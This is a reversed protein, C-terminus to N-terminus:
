FSWLWFSLVDNQNDFTPLVASSRLRHNNCLKEGRISSLVPVIFYEFRNPVTPLLAFYFKSSVLLLCQCRRQADPSHLAQSKKENKSSQVPLKWRNWQPHFGSSCFTGVFYKGIAIIRGSLTWRQKKVQFKVRWINFFFILFIWAAKERSNLWSNSALKETTTSDCRVFPFIVMFACIRKFKNWNTHNAQMRITNTNIYLFEVNNM